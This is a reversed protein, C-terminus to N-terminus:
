YIVLTSLLSKTVLPCCKEIIIEIESPIWLMCYSTSLLTEFSGSHSAIVLIMNIQDLIPVLQTGPCSIAASTHIQWVLTYIHYWM